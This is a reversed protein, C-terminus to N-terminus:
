RQSPISLGLLMRLRLVAHGAVDLDALANVLHRLPRGFQGVKGRPLVAHRRRLGM